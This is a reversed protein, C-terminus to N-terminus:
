AVKVGDEGTMPRRARPQLERGSLRHRIGSGLVTIPERDRRQPRGIAALGPEGGAM